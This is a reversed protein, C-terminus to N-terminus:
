LFQLYIPEFNQEAFVDSKKNSAMGFDILQVKKTKEDYFVNGPHVDNHAVGVKHLEKLAEITKTAILRRTVQDYETAVKGNAREMIFSGAKYGLLKPALGAKAAINQFALENNFSKESIAKNFTKTVTGDKNLTVSGFAGRGLLDGPKPGKPKEVKLKSVATSIKAKSKTTDVICDKSKEICSNKCNAGITCNKTGTKKKM